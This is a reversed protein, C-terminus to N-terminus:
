LHSKNTDESFPDLSVDVPVCTVAAASKGSLAKLHAIYGTYKSQWLAAFM